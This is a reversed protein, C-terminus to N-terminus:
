RPRVKSRPASGYRESRRGIEIAVVVLVMGTVHRWTFPEGFVLRAWVSALLPLAALVLSSLTASVRLHAWNVLLHGNGPGLAMLAILALDTGRRPLIEGSLLLGPTVVILAIGLMAATLTLTHAGQERARKTFLFFALYGLMSAVSWLDGALTRGRDGLNAQVVIWIGALALVACWGLTEPVPEGVARRSLLAVLLPMSASILTVVAITTGKTALVIAFQHAGFAIGAGMVAGWRSPWRTRTALAVTSLTGVGIVLRWFAITPTPLPILKIIVFGWSFGLLALVLAALGAGTEKAPSVTV